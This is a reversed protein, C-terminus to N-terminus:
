GVGRPGMGGKKGKDTATQAREAKLLEINKWVGKKQKPVDMGHSADSDSESNGGGGAMTALAVSLVRDRERDTLTMRVCLAVLAGRREQVDASLDTDRKEDSTATILQMAWQCAGKNSAM